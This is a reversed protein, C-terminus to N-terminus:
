ESVAFDAVSRIAGRMVPQRSNDFRLKECDAGSAQVHAAGILLHKCVKAAKTVPVACGVEIYKSRSVISLVDLVCRRARYATYGDIGSRWGM